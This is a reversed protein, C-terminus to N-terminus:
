NKEQETSLIGGQENAVTALDKDRTQENTKSVYIAVEVRICLTLIAPGLPFCVTM